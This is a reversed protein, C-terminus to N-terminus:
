LTRLSFNLQPRDQSSGDDEGTESVFCVFTWNPRYCFGGSVPHNRVLSSRNETWVSCCLSDLILIRGGGAPPAGRQCGSIVGVDKYIVSSM